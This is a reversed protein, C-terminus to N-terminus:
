YPKKETLGFYIGLMGRIECGQQLQITLDFNFCDM